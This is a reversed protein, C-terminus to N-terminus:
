EPSGADPEGAYSGANGNLYYNICREHEDSWPAFSECLTAPAGGVGGNQADYRNLCGYYESNNLGYYCSCISPSDGLESCPDGGAGGVGIGAGGGVGGVGCWPDWAPDCGYGGAGAPGGGVGGFGGAGGVGCGPDCSPDCGYGGAGGAGGVGPYGAAGGVGGNVCSWYEYSDYPYWYECDDFGGGVGGMGAVYTGGGGGIMGAAGAAGGTAGGAGAEEVTIYTAPCGSGLLAIAFSMM